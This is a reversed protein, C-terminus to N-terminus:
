CSCCLERRRFALVGERLLFGAIFLGAIADAQWWGLVFHLGSGILLAVSLLVCGLTQKSDSELSHSGIAAATRRKLLFLPPMVILSLAAIILGSPSRDPGVGSYLHMASEYVVYAALVSLAGAVLVIARRERRHIQEDTLGSASFRWIMIGGSLSELFSDIGFGLLAPSGSMLAFAVSVLGELVNYGVTFFSLLLTRRRLGDRSDIIAFDPRM